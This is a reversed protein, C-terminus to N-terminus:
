DMVPAWDGLYDAKEYSAAEEATLQPRDATASAVSGAGTNAYERFFSDKWPYTTSGSTWDQYPAAKIAAPLSSDRIVLSGKAGGFATVWPRGLHFTGAPADSTLTSDTILFGYTTSADTSPAAVYGNNSNSGRSLLKFTSNDFVATAYGCVFDVDGEVYSDTFYVRNPTTTTTSKLFLTDQNGLFRVNDFVLRDAQTLLAVAQESAYSHAAEDFSNEVTLNRALFDSGKVYMTRSNQTGLTGTGDATPTGAANDYTIVTQSPDDGAGVLRVYKNTVQVLERYTGPNVQIVKPDAATGAGLADLAAQVSTHDGDGDADVVADAGPVPAVKHPRTASAPASDASVNGAEDVARLLYASETGPTASTDLHGTTAGGTASDLYAFTTAGPRRVFIQYATADDANATWTLLNGDATGEAALGTPAAPATRDARTSVVPATRESVNGATDVSAIAYHYTSKEAATDDYFSTGLSSGIKAYTGDAATARYVLHSEAEGDGKWTLRNGDAADAVALDYPLAPATEDVTTVPKAASGTSTNGAKDHARLQYEYTDGTKPLTTDTYSPSTASATTTALPTTGFEGGQPRRYVRYGALDMEKNAPWTLKAHGSSEDYSVKPSAPTLPATKDVTAPTRPAYAFSVNAAGTWNVYDVRLTHQGSPITLDVTKRRTSSVNKWISVEREGDVYVRIGDRATVTLTFPGGSGFDRTLTWRVGFNNAPLSKAPASTGWNESIRADCDTKKPTGSFATNAYLQRKFTPSNCTVAAEATLAYVTGTTAAIATAVATTRLRGRGRRRRHRVPRPSSGETM